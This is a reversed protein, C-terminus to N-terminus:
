ENRIAGEEAQANSHSVSKARWSLTQQDLGLIWDASTHLVPCLAILAPATVLREGRVYRSLASQSVGSRAAIEARSLGSRAVAIGLRGSAIALIVADPITRGPVFAVTATPTSATM